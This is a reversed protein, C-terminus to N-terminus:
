CADSHGDSKILATDPGGPVMAPGMLRRRNLPVTAVAFGGTMHQLCSCAVSVQWYAM